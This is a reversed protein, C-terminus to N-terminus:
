FADVTCLVGVRAELIRWEKRPRSDQIKESSVRYLPFLFKKKLTLTINVMLLLAPVCFPIFYTTSDSPTVSLRSM